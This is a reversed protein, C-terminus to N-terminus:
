GKRGRRESTPTSTRAPACYRSSTAAASVSRGAFAPSSPFPGKPDEARMMAEFLPIVGAEEDVLDVLGLLVGSKSGFTSYLTQVAVEAEVAIEKM